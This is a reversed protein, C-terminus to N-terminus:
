GGSGIETPPLAPVTGPGAPDMVIETGDEIVGCPCPDKLGRQVWEYGYGDWGIGKGALTIHNCFQTVQDAHIMCECIIKHSGCEITGEAEYKTKWAYFYLIQCPYVTRSTSIEKIDDTSDTWNQNFTVSAHATAKLKAFLAFAALDIDGGFTESAGLSVSHTRKVSQSVSSTEPFCTSNIAWMSFLIDTESKTLEVVPTDFEFDDSLYIRKFRDPGEGHWWIPHAEHIHSNGHFTIQKGETGGPLLLHGL